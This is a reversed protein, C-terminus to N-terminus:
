RTCKYFKGREHLPVHFPADHTALQGTAGPNGEGISLLDKRQKGAQESSFPNAPM